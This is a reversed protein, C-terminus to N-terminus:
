RSETSRRPHQSLLDGVRTLGRGLLRGTRGRYGARSATAGGAVVVLMVMVAEKTVRGRWAADSPGKRMKLVRKMRGPVMLLLLLLLLVQGLGPVGVPHRHLGIKSSVVVVVVAAVTVPAAVSSDYVVSEPRLITMLVAAITIEGWGVDQGV